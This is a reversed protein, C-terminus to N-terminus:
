LFGRRKIRYRPTPPGEAAGVAPVSPMKGVPRIESGPTWNGRIRSRLFWGGSAPGAPSSFLNGEEAFRDDHPICRSRGGQPGTAAAGRGRLDGAWHALAFGGHIEPKDPNEPTFFADFEERSDIRVLNRRWFIRDGPAAVRGSHRRPSRHIRPHIGGQRHIGKRHRTSGPPGLAWRAIRWTAPPRNRDEPPVGKKM